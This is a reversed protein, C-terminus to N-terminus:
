EYVSKVKLFLKNNLTIDNSFRALLPSVDQAVAQMERSTEASNLNFLVSAIDGLKDGAHDLAAIVNEFGPEEPNDAISDIEASAIRIAEEIAPKFLPITFRDFPPTGFPTNWEMLLPNASIKDM